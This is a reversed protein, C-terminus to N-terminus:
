LYTSTLNGRQFKKNKFPTTLSVNPCHLLASQFIVCKLINFLSGILDSDLNFCLYAISVYRQIHLDVWAHSVNTQYFCENSDSIFCM